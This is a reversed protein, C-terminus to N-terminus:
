QLAPGLDLYALRPFVDEAEIVPQPEDEADAVTEAAQEVGMWEAMEAGTLWRADEFPVSNTMAYFAQAEREDMGMEVYYDLYRRHEPASAPYDEAGFGRDDLWGHVAFSSDEDIELTVGALFLEVAGSRVSGGEPARTAIGHERVMRAVRFNALDDHTGPAEIFELVEVEPFAALLASFQAPARSDTVDVLAATNADLVRFPGYAAIANREAAEHEPSVFRSAPVAEVWEEVVVYEEAAVPAAVLAALPALLSALFPLRFQMGGYTSGRM